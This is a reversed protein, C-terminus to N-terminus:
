VRAAKIRMVESYLSFRDERVEVLAAENYSDRLEKARDLALDEEDKGFFETVDGCTVRYAEDDEEDILSSDSEEAASDDTLDDPRQYVVEGDSNFVVVGAYSSEKDDAVARAAEIQNLTVVEKGRIMELVGPTIVGLLESSNAVKEFSARDAFGVVTFPAKLEPERYVPAVLHKGENQYYGHHEAIVEYECVRMKADNYDVPISVVNAPDVKCLMVHGNAHAFSPLYSFSCVHLGQSCTREDDEDVENRDMRPRQGISNDFTGSHIDKYDARVAKYALFHGDETIHFGGKELFAYLREVVKRSPNAKLRELFRAMALVPEGRRAIELLRDCLYNTIPKGDFLVVGHEIKVRDTLQMDAAKAAELQAELAIREQDIIKTIEDAAAKRNEETSPEAAYRKIVDLVEAFRPHDSSLSVPRTGLVMNLGQQTQMYPISM